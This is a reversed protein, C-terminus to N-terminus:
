GDLRNVAKATENDKRIHVPFVWGNNGHGPVMVAGINREDMMALAKRQESTMTEAKRQADNM